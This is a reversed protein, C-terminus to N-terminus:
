AGSMLGCRRCPRKDPRSPSTAEQAGGGDGDAEAGCWTVGDRMWDSPLSLSCALAPPAEDKSDAWM